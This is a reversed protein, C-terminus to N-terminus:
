QILLVLLLQIMMQMMCEYIIQHDHKELLGYLVKTLITDQQDVQLPLRDFHKSLRDM